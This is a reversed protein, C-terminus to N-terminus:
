DGVFLRRLYPTLFKGQPDLRERVAQFQDWKPYIDRLEKATQTHLKGWHPRGGYQKFIDEVGDFLKRYTQKAYQHVAITASDRGEFPSMWIDDGRVTRYEIPFVFNGGKERMHKAVARVCDPGNEIPVAYEMENFRVDRDSPFAEYAHRVRGKQSFEREGGMYRGGAQSTLFRQLPGRLFPAVRSMECAATMAYHDLKGAPRPPRPDADTPNLFKVLVEDAFPFWFFEFHRNGAVLDHIQEFMEDVNMRGGTERLTYAEVCQLTFEAMVGLTGLSVRGADFVDAHEDRSCELVSGDATVLRFAHVQTSLNGLTVGTGHTGTSIAGAISQRNIDGQNALALGADLLPKGLDSIKTGAKVRALGTGKDASVLGAHGDINILTGDTIVVPTFSHGTGPVRVPGEAAKVAESIEAESAARVTKAPACSLAGSWNRWTTTEAAGM